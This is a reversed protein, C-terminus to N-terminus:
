FQGKGPITFGTFPKDTDSLKLQWFGNTLDLCTFLNSGARGIEELCQDITKISYKDPISKHNLLRYDLVVRLGQGEKKPM